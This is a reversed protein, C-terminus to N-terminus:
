RAVVSAFVDALEGTWIMLGLLGLAFAPVYAFEKRGRSLAILALFGGAVATCLLLLFFAGLGLAAGLATALKVDGGGLGGRAYPVATVGLGVALGALHSVWSVGGVQFLTALVAWGFLLVLLRHSVTHSFLDIIAAISVLLFPILLVSM